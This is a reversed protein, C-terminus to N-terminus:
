RGTGAIVVALAVGILAGLLMGIIGGLGLGAIAGVALALLAVVRRPTSLPPAEVYDVDDPVPPLRELEEDTLGPVKMRQESKM